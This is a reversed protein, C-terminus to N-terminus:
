DYAILCSHTHVSTALYIIKKSTERFSETFEASKATGITAKVLNQLQVPFIGKIQYWDGGLLRISM